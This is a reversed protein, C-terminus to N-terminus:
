KDIHIPITIDIITGKGITSEINIKGGILNVREKIVKIGFHNNGVMNVDEVSYGKGNDKIFVHFESGLDKINIVIKDAEAHKVINNLCEQVIRYITVLVLNNECSVDDIDTDIIYDNNENVIDLLREITSKFGLDDFTMPRLDFITCRMDDIISRINKSIISFEIKARIPDSDIFLSGLEIKHILHVLNQLSTDHLERAIRQRDMEQIDLIAFNDESSNSNSNNLDNIAFRLNNIRDSLIDKKVYLKTVEEIIVQRQNITKDIEEKYINEVNRPSFFKFDNNDKETFSKIYADSESVKIELNKIEIDLEDYEVELESLLDKLVDLSKQSM